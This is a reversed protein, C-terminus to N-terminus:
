PSLSDLTTEVKRMLRTDHQSQWTMNVWSEFAASACVNMLKAVFRQLRRWAQLQAVWAGFARGLAANMLHGLFKACLVRRRRADVAVSRWADVCRATVLHEIRLAVRGGVLRLQARTATM